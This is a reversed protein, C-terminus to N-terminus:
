TSVIHKRWRKSTLIKNKMVQNIYYIDNSCKTCKWRCYALLNCVILRSVQRNTKLTIDLVYYVVHNAHYLNQQGSFSPEYGPRYMLVDSYCSLLIGLYKGTIYITERGMALLQAFNWKHRMYSVNCWIIRYIHDVSTSDMHIIEYHNASNHAINLVVDCNPTHTTRINLTM